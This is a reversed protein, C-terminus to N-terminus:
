IRPRVKCTTILFEPPHPGAIQKLLHKPSESASWIKYAVVMFVLSSSKLLVFCKDSTKDYKVYVIFSVERM